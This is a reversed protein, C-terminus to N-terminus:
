DPTWLKKEGGPEQSGPTWLKGPEAAAPPAAQQPPPGVPTGDPRIAGIQVLWQMLREAVGPEQMHQSRVHHVLRSVEDAEGRSLRLPLELLDWSACSRGASESTQRGQQLYHLARQPDKEMQALLAYALSQEESGTLAPRDVIAVALKRLASTAGFAMARQFAVRLSEDDITQVTVRSLRVLPLAAMSTQQPDIPGPIPLGLESRLENFDFGDSAREIWGELVMVAALLKADWSADGAVERPSKGGLIGLKLQPWRHLLADRIHEVALTEFQELTIEDPPRWNRQMLEQSASAQAVVEEEIDADLAGDATEGLLTKLKQLDSSAVGIVELRAERDTQRGYVMAQGLVRSVDSLTVNETAKAPPRDLLLYATGPPPGDESGFASPDLPMQLAQPQLALAAQLQELDKVAFRLNVVDFRDGLPDDHCLMATAEAEVAEDLSVDLAAFKKLAEILGSDDALWGRLTALNRWIAPSGIASSGEVEAALATLREAAALWHGSQIPEMAQEFRTKWPADDPCRALPPDDKLLLPVGPTRNLEILMTVPHPDQESLVTQLQLLARGALWHGQHLLVEAVIGLAEYVRGGVVEGSAALARQVIQMAAPGGQEVATLIASEAMATPNQPHKAVFEAAARGAEETNGTVRLLRSRLSLLCARDPHEELLQGLHQLCAQPQEGQLMRDIKQLEGLLDPCCFKVKKGTGCPCISYADVPM